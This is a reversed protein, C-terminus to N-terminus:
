DADGVETGHHALRRRRDHFRDFPAELAGPCLRAPTRRDACPTQRAPRSAATRQSYADASGPPVIRRTGAIACASRRAATGLSGSLLLGAAAVATESRAFHPAAAELISPRILPNITRCSLRASFDRANRI